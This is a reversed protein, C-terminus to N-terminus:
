TLHNDLPKSQRLAVAALARAATDRRVRRRDLGDARSRRRVHVTGARELGVADHGLGRM